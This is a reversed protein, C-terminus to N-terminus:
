RILSLLVGSLTLHLLEEVGATRPGPERAVLRRHLFPRVLGLVCWAAWLKSVPHPLLFAASFALGQWALARILDSRDLPGKLRLRVFALSALLTPALPAWARLAEPLPAGQAQLMAPLLFSFALAGLAEPLWSRQDRRPRALALAALLGAAGLWPLATWASRAGLLGLGVAAGLAPIATASPVRAGARYRALPERLLLGALGLLAIAGSALGPRLALGVGVPLLLLAWTGHEAPLLARFNLPRPLFSM